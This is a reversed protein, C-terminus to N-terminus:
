HRDARFGGGSGDEKLSGQKLMHKLDLLRTELLDDNVRRFLVVQSHKAQPTFGGAIQVAEAVTTESRLEYKGPKGVEGGVM